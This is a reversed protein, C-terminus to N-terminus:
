TEEIFTALQHEISRNNLSKLQSAIKLRKEVPHQQNLKWQGQIKSIEISFCVIQNLLEALYAGEIHDKWNQSSHDKDFHKMTADLIKIKEDADTIRKFSGYAHVSIYLWTSVSNDEQYWSSSVYANPGTFVTLVQQDIHKLHSNFLGLHGYLTGYEGKDRDILFPLHSGLIESNQASLLLGFGYTDIFNWLENIDDQQYPKPIHM